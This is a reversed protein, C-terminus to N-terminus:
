RPRLMITFFPNHRAVVRASACFSGFKGLRSGALIVANVSKPELSKEIAVVARGVEDFDLEVRTTRTATM